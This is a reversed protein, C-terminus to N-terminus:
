LPQSIFLPGKSFPPENVIDLLDIVRGRYGEQGTEFHGDFVVADIEEDKELM